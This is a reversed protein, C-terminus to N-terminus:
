DWFESQKVVQSSIKIIRATEGESMYEKYKAEAQHLHWCTVTKNPRNKVEVEYTDTLTRNM